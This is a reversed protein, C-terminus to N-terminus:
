THALRRRRPLNSSNNIQFELDPSWPSAGPCGSFLPTAASQTVGGVEEGRKKVEGM